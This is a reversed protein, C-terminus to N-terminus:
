WCKQGEPLMYIENSTKITNPSVLEGKIIVKAQERFYDPLIGIFEVNIESASEGIIFKVLLSDKSLAISGAKIVGCTGILTGLAPKENTSSAGNIIEYPKLVVLAKQEQKKKHNEVKDLEVKEASYGFSTYLSFLMILSIYKNM